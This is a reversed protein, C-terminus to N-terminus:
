IFCIYFIFTFLLYINPKLFKQMTSVYILCKGAVTVYTSNVLVLM